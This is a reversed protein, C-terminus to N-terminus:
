SRLTKLAAIGRRLAAIRAHYGHTPDIKAKHKALALETALAYLRVRVNAPGYTRELLAQSRAAIRRQVSRTEAAEEPTVVGEDALETAIWDAERKRALNALRFWILAASLTLALEAVHLPIAPSSALYNNTMHLAIGAALGAVPAWRRRARSPADRAVGLGFGFCGSFCAHGMGFLLGRGVIMGALDASPAGLYYFANETMSFGLGVLAGYLLGDLRGDFEERRHRFLHVLVAGKCLEEVIPAVIVVEFSHAVASGLLFRTSGGLLAEGIVALIVAPLAGWFFAREVLRWPEEEYCDVQWVVSLFFLAQLVAAIFALAIPYGLLHSAAFLASYLWFRPPVQTVMARLLREGGVLAADASRAGDADLDDVPAGDRVSTTPPQTPRQMAYRPKGRALRLAGRPRV